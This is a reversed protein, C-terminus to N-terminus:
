HYIIDFWYWFLPYTRTKPSGLYRKRTVTSVLGKLYQSGNLPNVEGLLNEETCVKQVEPSRVGSMISLLSLYIGGIVCLTPLSLIHINSSM